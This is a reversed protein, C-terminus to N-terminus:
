LKYKEILQNIDKQANIQREPDKEKVFENRLKEDLVRKKVNDNLQMEWYEIMFAKHEKKQLPFGVEVRKDLNRTMLDASSCYLENEGGHHFYYCRSHELFRGVISFVKINESLGKVGPKICCIGRIILNVEVGAQSASYISQIMEPDELSNMKLIIRAKKGAKVFEAEELILDELRKRQNFPSGLLMNTQYKAAKGTLFKFIEGLEENLVKDSTLLSFDTYIKATKENFNGTGFHAIYQKKGEKELEIQFIKAHTKLQGVTDYISAGTKKLRENWYINSTEDFRAKLETYVVVRKGNLVARELQECIQSEKAVRYLTIQISVVDPHEAAEKLLKVVSHYDQYPFSLLVDEELVSSIISPHKTLTKSAIPVTKEFYLSADELEPFNFFDYFKHYRGGPVLAEKDSQTKVMLDNIFKYPILEDFLLRTPVGSERKKLSDMIKQKLNNAIPEDELYLEADRSLKIAYAGVFRDNFVLHEMGIRIIDDLLFIYNIGNMSSQHFRNLQSSLEVLHYNYVVKKKTVIFLYNEQNKLFVEGKRTIREISLQNEIQRYISLAKEKYEEKNFDQVIHIGKEKLGPIIEKYFVKGFARQQKDVTRYITKLIATPRYGFKNPKNIEAYAFHRQRAVRVRYFEEINSSFIALFKLREMLPNSKKKAEQLVRENFSLWSIDRDILNSKM